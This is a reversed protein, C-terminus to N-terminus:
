QKPIANYKYICDDCIHRYRTGYSDNIECYTLQNFYNDCLQCKETYKIPEKEVDVIETGCKRCFKSNNILKEGCKRCFQLTDYITDAKRNEVVTPKPKHESM